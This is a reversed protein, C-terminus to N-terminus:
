EVKLVFHVPGYLVSYNLRAVGVAAHKNAAQVKVLHLGGAGRVFVHYTKM